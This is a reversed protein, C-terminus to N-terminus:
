SIAQEVKDTSSGQVVAARTVDFQRANGKSLPVGQRLMEDRQEPNLVKWYGGTYLAVGRDPAEIMRMDPVEEPVPQAPNRAYADIAPLAAYISDGPCATAVFDRHGRLDAGWGQDRLWRVAGGLWQKEQETIAEGTGLMLQVSTHSTNAAATGNSGVRVFPKDWETRAEMWIGCPCIVSGYELDNSGRNMHQAQWQRLLSRHQDHSMGRFASAAGPYHIAVGQKTVDTRRHKPPLAGWQERTERRLDM